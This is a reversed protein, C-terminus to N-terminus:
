RRAGAGGLVKNMRVCELNVDAAVRHRAPGLPRYGMRAYFPEANLTANLHVIAHGRGRAEEEMRAILAAGIGSRVADPSVYCAEIEGRRPDLQGFGVIRGGREAVFLERSVFATRYAEPPRFAIWATIEREAYRDRCLARISEGHVRFIEPVDSEEAPRVTFSAAPAARDRIVRILYRPTLGTLQFRTTRPPITAATITL